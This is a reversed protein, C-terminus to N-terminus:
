FPAEGAEPPDTAEEALRAALAPDLWGAGDPVLVTWGGDNDFAFFVEYASVPAPHHYCCEWCAGALGGDRNLGLAEWAEAGDGEQLLAFAGHEDPSWTCGAEAHAAVVAALREGVLDVVTPAVARLAAVAAPSDIIIV